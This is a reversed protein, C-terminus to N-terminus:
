PEESTEMIRTAARELCELIKQYIATEQDTLDNQSLKGECFSYIEMPNEPLMELVAPLLDMNNHTREEPPLEAELCSRFNFGLQHVTDSKEPKAAKSKGSLGAFIRADRSLPREPYQSLGKYIAMRILLSKNIISPELGQSVAIDYLRAMVSDDIRLHTKM